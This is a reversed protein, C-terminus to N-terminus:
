ITIIPNSTKSAGVILAKPLTHDSSTDTQARFEVDMPILLNSM